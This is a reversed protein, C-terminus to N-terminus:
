NEKPQHNLWEQIYHELLLRHNAYKMTLQIHLDEFIDIREILRHLAASGIDASCDLHLMEEFYSISSFSATMEEYQVELREREANCQSSIQQLREMQMQYTDEELIGKKLDRKIRQVKERCDATRSQLEDIKTQYKEQLYSLICNQDTTQFIQYLPRLSMQEEQLKEQVQKMLQSRTIRFPLHSKLMYKFRGQCSYACVTKTNPTHETKLRHRCEGCYLLAIFPNQTQDVTLLNQQRHEKISQTAATRQKQLEEFDSLSLYAPHTDEYRKWQSQPQEGFVTKDYKRYVSKHYFSNGTYVPNQLLSMISMLNWESDTGDVYRSHGSKWYHRPAAVGLFRMIDAMERNTYGAQAMAFLLYVFPAVETDFQLMRKHTPRRSYGYAPNGMLYGNEAKSDLASCIKKSIDTVYYDNMINRASYIMADPDSCLSDYNDLISIFRIHYRPFVEYLYYSTDIYNRGLRSFDRVVICNFKGAIMDDIMRTFNPRRFHTGSFGDDFYTDHLEMDPHNAVFENLIQLQMDMFSADLETKMSSIRGYIAVKYSPVTPTDTGTISAAQRPVRSKRAM